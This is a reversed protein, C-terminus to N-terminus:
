RTEITFDCTKQLESMTSLSETRVSEEFGFLNESRNFIFKEVVEIPSHHLTQVLFYISFYTSPYSWHTLATMRFAFSGPEFERETM